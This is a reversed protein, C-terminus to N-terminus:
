RATFLLLFLVHAFVGGMRQVGHRGLPRACRARGPGPAASLILTALWGMLSRFFCLVFLVHVFLGGMRQVGHRGLPRACRARGPWPAASLILTALWGMM